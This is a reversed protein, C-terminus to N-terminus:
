KCKKYRQYTGPVVEVGNKTKMYTVKGGLQITTFTEGVKLFPLMSMAPATIPKWVPHTRHPKTNM